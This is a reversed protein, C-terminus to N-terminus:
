RWDYVEGSFTGNAGHIYLSLGVMGDLFALQGTSNTSYINFGRFVSEGKENGQGISLGTYTAREGDPTTIIGQSKIHEGNSKHTTVVTVEETVDVKNMLTGNAEYSGQTVIPDDVSLIISGRDISNTETYFPDGLSTNIEMRTTGGDPTGGDPAPKAPEHCNGCQTDANAPHTGLVLAFVLTLTTIVLSRQKYKM